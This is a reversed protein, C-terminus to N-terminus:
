WEDIFVSDFVIGSANDPQIRWTADTGIFDIDCVM